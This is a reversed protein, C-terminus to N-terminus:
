INRPPCFSLKSWCRFNFCFTRLCFCPLAETDIAEQLQGLNRGPLKTDVRFVRRGPAASGRVDRRFSLLSLRASLAGLQTSHLDTHTWQMQGSGGYPVTCYIHYKLCHCAKLKCAHIRLPFLSALYMGSMGIKGFPFATSMSVSTFPLAATLSFIIFYGVSM